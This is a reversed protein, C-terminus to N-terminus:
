VAIWRFGQLGKPRSVKKHVSEVSVLSERTKFTQVIRDKIKNKKLFM